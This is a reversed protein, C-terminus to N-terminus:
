QQVSEDAEFGVAISVIMMVLCVLWSVITYRVASAVNADLPGESGLLQGWHGWMGGIIDILESISIYAFLGCVLMRVLAATWSHRLFWSVVNNVLYVGSFVLLWQRSGDVIRTDIDTVGAGIFYVAVASVPFMLLFPIKNALKM